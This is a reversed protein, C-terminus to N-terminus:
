ASKEYIEFIVEFNHPQHIDTVDYSYNPKLLEMEFQIRYGTKEKIYDSLKDTNVPTQCTVGDHQLLVINEGLFGIMHQLILSEAGHLIHALLTSKKVSKEKDTKTRVAMGADNMIKFHGKTKMEYDQIVHNRAKNIESALKSIWTRNLYATETKIDLKKLVGYPSLNSGYILAILVEKAKEETCHLMSAVEARVRKKNRVYYSICPTQFGTRECMQELLTYHCNEIDIDYYGALAAHRIKRSCNQLNFAGKAYLRGGNSQVYTTPLGGSKNADATALIFEIQNILPGNADTRTLENMLRRLSFRNISVEVPIKDKIKCKRGDKLASLIGNRPPIYPKNDDTLGCGKKTARCCKSFIDRGEKTIIYGDSYKGAVHNCVQQILPIDSKIESFRSALSIHKRRESSYVSFAFEDNPHKRRGVAGIYFLNYFYRKENSTYKDLNKQTTIGETLLLKEINKDFNRPKISM